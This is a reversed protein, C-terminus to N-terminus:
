YPIRPDDLAKQSAEMGIDPYDWERSGPREFKTMGVGIVFSRESVIPEKLRAQDTM